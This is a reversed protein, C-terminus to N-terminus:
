VRDADNHTFLSNRLERVAEAAEEATKFTKGPYHLKGHHM